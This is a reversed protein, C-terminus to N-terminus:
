IFQEQVIAGTYNDILLAEDGVIVWHYGYPAVGLGYAYPDIYTNWYTRPLFDGVGWRFSRGYGRDYGGRNYGGGYAYNQRYGGEFGRGQFGGGRGYDRRDGNRQGGEFRQGYQQQM